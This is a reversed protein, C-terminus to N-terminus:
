RVQLAKGNEDAYFPKSADMQGMLTEVIKGDIMFQVQEIEEFSNCLTSVVQNIFIAEEMSGGYFGESDIDVFCTGEKVYVQDFDVKQTVVTIANEEPETVLQELTMEYVEDVDDEEVMLKSDYPPLMMPSEVTEVGTNVYDLNGFYLKVLVEEAITDEEVRGDEVDDKSKGCATFTFFATILTICLVVTIYNIKKRKM